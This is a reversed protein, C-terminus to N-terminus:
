EMEGEIYLRVMETKANSRVSINRKVYGPFKGKGDYAVEIKGQAGPAIPKKEYKVNTCGCSAMVQNIVLPQNGTNTFTFVAHQIDSEKFKGFNHTMKDFKIEAQASAFTAFTFLAFAIMLFKKM